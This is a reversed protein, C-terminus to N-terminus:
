KASDKIQSAGKEPVDRLLPFIYVPVDALGPSRQMGANRSRGRQRPRPGYITTATSRSQTLVPGTGTERRAIQWSSGSGAPANSATMHPTIRTPNCERTDRRALHPGLSIEGELSFGGSHM